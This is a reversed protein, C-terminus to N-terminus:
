MRLLEESHKIPLQHHTIPTRDFGKIGSCWFWKIASSLKLRPIPAYLKEIILM